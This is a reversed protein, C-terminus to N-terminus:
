RAGGSSKIDSKQTARAAEIRKLEELLRAEAQSRPKADEPAIRPIGGPAGSAKAPETSTIRAGGVEAANTLRNALSDATEIMFQLEQSLGRGAAIHSELQGGVEQASLKLDQLSTEAHSLSQSLQQISREFDSKEARLRNLNKNLVYAYVITGGLMLIMVVDLLLSWNIEM